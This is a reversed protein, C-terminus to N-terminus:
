GAARRDGFRRRASKHGFPCAATCIGCNHGGHFRAFHKKKWDDCQRADLLVRRKVGPSWAQGTLANAPCADVCDRCTGCFHRVVPAGAPLRADTLVTGLRQWPGYQFTILQCHRGIWGLGARTAATKHPFDGKIGIPDTRESAPVPWASFGFGHILETLDRAIRNIIRNVSAYEDAYEPTPGHTLGMMIEPTMPLAFSVATHYQALRDPTLGDVDAFGSVEVQQDGLFGRIARAAKVAKKNQPESM